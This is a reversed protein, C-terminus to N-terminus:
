VEELSIETSYRYEDGYYDLNISPPSAFRVVVVTSTAPHIWNFATAGGSLTTDFFTTLLDVDVQPLNQYSIQFKRRRRSYKQRTHQYGGEFPTKIVNDERDEKLPYIPNTSLTPFDAM